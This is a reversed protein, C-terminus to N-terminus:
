TVPRLLVLLFHAPALKRVLPTALPMFIAGPLHTAQYERPQRVDLIQYDGAPYSDILEKVEPTTWSKVASFLSQWKM